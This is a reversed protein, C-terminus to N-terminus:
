EDIEERNMIVLNVQTIADSKEDFSLSNISKSYMSIKELRDYYRVANAYIGLQGSTQAEEEMADLYTKMEILEDYFIRIFLNAKSTLPKYCHM